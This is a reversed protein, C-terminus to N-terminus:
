GNSFLWVNVAKGFMFRSKSGWPATGSRGSALLREAPKYITPQPQVPLKMASEVERSDYGNMSVHEEQLITANAVTHESAEQGQLTASREKSIAQGRGAGGKGGLHSERKEQLGAHPKQPASLRNQGKAGSKTQWVGRDIGFDIIFCDCHTHVMWTRVSELRPKHNSTGSKM